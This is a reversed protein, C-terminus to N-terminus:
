SNQAMPHTAEIATDFLFAIWALAFNSFPHVLEFPKGFPSENRSSCAVTSCALRPFLPRHFGVHKDNPALRQTTEILNNNYCTSTLDKEVVQRPFAVAAAHALQKIATCRRKQTALLPRPLGYNSLWQYRHSLLAQARNAASFFCM